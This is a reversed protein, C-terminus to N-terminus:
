RPPPSGSGEDTIRRGIELIHRGQFPPRGAVMAYLVSGLSFLDARADVAEGRAQEPGMYMPTGAVQGGPDHQGRRGARALGFDTIKVQEGDARAAHRQGAQHRPPDAGHTPPRWGRPSRGASGCCRGRGPRRGEDIREKLSRGVLCEMVLYPLGHEEDVAHITVVNVHSIAAASRAERLFRRRVSDSNALRPSILKIAVVRDLKPDFGKLVVGMGGCGLIGLVEYHAIRGLSDPRARRPSSRSTPRTMAAPRCRSNPQTPVGYTMTRSSAPDHATESPDSSPRSTGETPEIGCMAERCDPCLGLHERLCDADDGSLRGAALGQLTTLSPCRM